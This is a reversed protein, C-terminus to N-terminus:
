DRECLSQLLGIRVGGPSVHLREAGSWRVITDVIAAGAVIVDARRADLGPLARREALPMEALRRAIARVAECDITAPPAFDGGDRIAVLTTVTAALGVLAFPSEPKPVAALASDVLVRVAAIAADGPPDSGVVRETLRVSGVDISRHWTPDEGLAGFAIETSGGGVDFALVATGRALGTAYAAGRFTLRAEEEGSVVRVDPGAIERARSLFEDRNRADRVASTAVAAISASGMARAEDVFTRLADLARTMAAPALVHTADVAEGLRTITHRDAVVELTGEAAFRGTAALLTNTGIDIATLLRSHRSPSM